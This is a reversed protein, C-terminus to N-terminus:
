PSDVKPDIVLQEDVLEALLDRVERQLRNDDIDFESRLIQAIVDAGENQAPGALLEWIRSGTANLTFIRSTDLHVLVTSGDLERAVVNPHPAYGM